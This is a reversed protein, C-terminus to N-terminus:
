LFAGGERSLNPSAKKARQPISNKRNNSRNHLDELVSRRSTGVEPRDKKTEAPYLVQYASGILAKLEAAIGDFTEREDEDIVGDEAILMLRKLQGDLGACRNVLALVATPLGQVRIEPVVGLDGSATQLHAVALWPTGYVEAMSAAMWNPPLRQGTEYAKLSEVSTHLVEAAAEQTLGAWQRAKKYDNPNDMLM